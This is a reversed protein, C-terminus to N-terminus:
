RTLMCTLGVTEVGVSSIGCTDCVRGKYQVGYATGCYPCRVLEQGQAIPTLSAGCIDFRGSSDYDLQVANRGEHQSKQVIKTATKRLKEPVRDVDLLRRAFGEATIFNKAKFAAVMANKLGVGVLHKTDLDCHTFYCTLELSRKGDGMAKAKRRAMEIRCATVYSNCMGLLERILRDESQKEVVLLPIRGFVSALKAQCGELDGKGFMQKAGKFDAVVRELSVAIRPRSAKRELGETRLVPRPVPTTGPLGNLQVSSALSVAMFADKMPAFNVVGIQRELLRMATQFSGAAIHDSALPSDTWFQSPPSGPNPPVYFGDGGSEGADGSDDLGSIDDDSGLDLDDDSGGGGWGGGDSDNGFGLDEDDDLTLDGGNKGSGSGGSGDGGLPGSAMADDLDDDDYGPGETGGDDLSKSEQAARVAEAFVDREVEVEPWNEQNPLVPSPPMMLKANAPLAPVTAGADEIRKRLREVDEKLGATGATIYALALQGVEELVHVREEIDGLYLANHFRSMRNKRHKAIKLMKSLHGRNGTVLYHFSLGDFNQCRQYAKEVVQSKGQQLAAVGLKEWCEPTDIEVASEMAVKINGCELALDFRTNHDEVFYLAVQPAGKKQLYALIAQGCLRSHKVMKMVDTYREQALALKFKAETMDLRISQTACERDLCYMVGKHVKTIYIPNELTRILGSDGTELCYNIHNSTTYVFINREDFAGSKIRVAETVNCKVALTKGECITISNKSMLAVLTHDTNWFVYKVRGCVVDGIIRRSNNEFLYMHDGKAILLRGVTGAFYITDPSPVPSDFRKTMENNMNKILITSSGGRKDLVAFRNRAVFVAARGSGHRPEAEGGGRTLTVLEYSGGDAKSWILLNTDSQNLVNYSMDRPATGLGSHSGGGSRRLSVIPVDRQQKYEFMRLYREKVYFLQGKRSSYAPRERELKFVIMGGDHGAALLNRTPHAALIWFRDAAREFTKITTRKSVDWVRISKDESNSVIVEMRPHFLVSSVNNKHGRLSDVEWAKTENMRWMKIVRDDAGSV